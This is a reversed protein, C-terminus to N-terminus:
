DIDWVCSYGMRCKIGESTRTKYIRRRETAKCRPKEKFVETVGAGFLYKEIILVSGYMEVDAKVQACTVEKARYQPPNAFSSGITLLCLFVGIFIKM